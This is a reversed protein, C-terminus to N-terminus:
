APMLEYRRWDFHYECGETPKLAREIAWGSETKVVYSVYGVEPFQSRLIRRATLGTLRRDTEVEVFRTEIHKVENLRKDIVRIRVMQM